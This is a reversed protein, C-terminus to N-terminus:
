AQFLLLRLKVVAECFGKAALFLCDNATYHLLRVDILCLSCSSGGCQHLLCIAALTLLCPLSALRKADLLSVSSRKIFTVRPTPHILFHNNAEEERLMTEKKIEMQPTLNRVNIVHKGKSTNRPHALEKM